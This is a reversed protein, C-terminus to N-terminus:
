GSIESAWPISRTAAASAAAGAAVLACCPVQCHRVNETDMEGLEILRREYLGDPVCEIDDLRALCENSVSWVEGEIAVGPESEVLGPYSGCDYLRYRPVTQAVRVFKEAVLVTNRCGGRMLTGYVFVQPM